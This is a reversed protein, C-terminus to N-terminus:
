LCTEAVLKDLKAGVLSKDLEKDRPVSEKKVRKKPPSTTSADKSLSTKPSVSPQSPPFMTPLHQLPFFPPQEPVAMSELVFWALNNVARQLDSAVTNWDGVSM